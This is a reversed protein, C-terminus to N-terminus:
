TRKGKRLNKIDVVDGNVFAAVAADFQDRHAEVLAAIARLEAVILPDVRGWGGGSVEREMRSLPNDEWRCWSGIHHACTMCIVLAFRQQGLRKSMARADEITIVLEPRYEAVLRGCVTKDAARWPLPTRIIHTLPEPNM